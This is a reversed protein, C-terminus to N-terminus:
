REQRPSKGGQAQRHRMAIALFLKNPTMAIVWAVLRWYRPLYRGVFNKGFNGVVAAAIKRHDGKLWDAIKANAAPTDLFGLRYFQICIGTRAVSGILSEFYSELARKAAAYAVNEPRGRIAAISGIGVINGANAARLKPLAISVTAIVAFVNIEFLERMTRGDSGVEDGDRWAGITCILNDLDGDEIAKALTKRFAEPWRADVTLVDVKVGFCTALHGAEAVLGLEDGAVLILDHGRQALERGIARGLGSGAGAILTRM